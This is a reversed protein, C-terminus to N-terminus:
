KSSLLARRISQTVSVPHLEQPYAFRLLLQLALPANQSVDSMTVATRPAHGLGLPEDRRLIRFAMAWQEFARKSIAEDILTTVRHHRPDRCIAAFVLDVEVRSGELMQIFVGDRFLLCGTIERRANRVRAHERIAALADQDVTGRAASSYVIHKM